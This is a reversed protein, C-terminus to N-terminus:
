YDEDWREGAYTPDFWAPPVDSNPAYRRTIEEQLALRKSWHGDCRPFSRGTGSLPFRMEVAGTCANDHRELCKLPEIYECSMPPGVPETIHGERQEEKYGDAANRYVVPEPTDSPADLEIVYESGTTSGTLTVRWPM